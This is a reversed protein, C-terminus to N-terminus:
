PTPAMRIPLASARARRAVDAHLGRARRLIRRYRYGGGGDITDNGAGGRFVNNASNGIITDSGSGGAANEIVSTTYIGINRDPRRHQLFKRRAPRYGPQQRLRVDLTDIGTGDYITYAPASTYPAFNYTSGTTANFGYTTNGNHAASAGYMQQIAMVDAMTPTMVFRYSIGDFSNQSMYSM